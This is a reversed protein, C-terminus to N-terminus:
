MKGEESRGKGCNCECSVTVGERVKALEGSKEGGSVRPTAGAPWSIAM